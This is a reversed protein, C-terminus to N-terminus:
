MGLAEIIEKVARLFHPTKEDERDKEEAERLAVLSARSCKYLLEKRGVSHVNTFISLALSNFCERVVDKARKKYSGGGEVFPILDYISKLARELRQERVVELPVSLSLPAMWSVNPRNGGAMVKVILFREYAAKEALGFANKGAEEAIIARYLLALYTALDSSLGVNEELRQVISPLKEEEGPLKLVQLVAFVYTPDTLDTPVVYYEVEKEELDKKTGVFSAVMGLFAMGVSDLYIMNSKRAIGMSPREENYLTARLVIPLKELFKGLAGKETIVRRVYSTAAQCVNRGRLEDRLTSKQQTQISKQQTQLTIVSLSYDRGYLRPSKKEKREKQSRKGKKESREEEEEEERGCMEEEVNPPVDNKLLLVKGVQLDYLAEYANKVFRVYADKSPFEISDTEEDIKAQGETDGLALALLQFSRGLTSMPLLPISM